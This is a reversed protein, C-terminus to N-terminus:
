TILLGIKNKCFNNDCLVNNIVLRLKPCTLSNYKVCMMYRDGELLNAKLKLVGSLRLHINIVCMM